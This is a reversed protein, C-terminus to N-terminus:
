PNVPVIWDNSSRDLVQLLFFWGQAQVLDLVMKLLPFHVAIKLLRM